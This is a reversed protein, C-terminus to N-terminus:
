AKCNARKDWGLGYSILPYCGAEGFRWGTPVPLRDRPPGLPRSEARPHLGGIGAEPWFGVIAGKHKRDPLTSVM